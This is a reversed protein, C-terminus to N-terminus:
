RTWSNNMRNVDPTYIDGLEVSIVSKKNLLDYTYLKRDEKWIAATERHHIISGDDYVITLDLPLPLPGLREITIITKDKEVTVNKIALDPYGGDFFWAEWFWNLDEGAVDSISFFFDYPSPHRGKWHHMFGHLAKLFKEEGLLDKLIWLCVAPKTFVNSYYAEDSFLNTNSIMPAEEGTATIKEYANKRYIGEREPEGLYPLIVSEGLTAWGEDMWAYKKENTGVYFPFYQHFIEHAIRQIAEAKTGTPSSNLIMPHVSQGSGGVITIYHNPFPVAPFTDTMIDVCRRAIHIVEDYEKYKKNYATAIVVRGQERDDAAFSCADWLYHNSVAFAFDAIDDSFFKWTNDGAKTVMGKVYDGSDIVHIVALSRQATQWKNNIGPALVDEPNLLEGTGWAIYGAPITIEVGFNGFDHYFEQAGNYISEDWGDIDDYVAVRPFFHVIFFTSSDGQGTRNHASNNVVYHWKVSIDTKSHPLIPRNLLAILNTFKRQVQSSEKGEVIIKEDGIQLSEITVGENEDEPDVPYNRLAGHKFYDPHLQFVVKLLTDPSNNFYTVQEEGSLLQSRPDFLVRINYNASNQWYNPGPKGHHSRTGSDYAKQFNRPIVLSNNQSFVIVSIHLLSFLHAIFIKKM